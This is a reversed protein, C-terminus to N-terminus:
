ANKCSVSEKAKKSFTILSLSDDATIAYDPLDNEALIKKLNYRFERLQSRIGTREYLLELRIAWKEQHGCGKRAIEYLRRKTANQIKYYEPSISLIERGLIANLSWDNLRVEVSIRSEEVKQENPNLISYGEILHFARTFVKGNTILDTEISTTHLRSLGERFLTYSNGGFSRHTARLYDMVSFRVVPSIPLKKDLARSLEGAIFLLIDRDWITPMGHGGPIINIFGHKSEIRRIEMTKCKSLSYIPLELFPVEAKPTSPSRGKAIQFHTPPPIVDDAIVIVTKKEKYNQPQRHPFQDVTLGKDM